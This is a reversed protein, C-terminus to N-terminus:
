GVELIIAFKPRHINRNFTAWKFGWRHPDTAPLSMWLRIKKKKKQSAPRPGRVTYNKTVM